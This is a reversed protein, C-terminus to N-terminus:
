RAESRIVPPDTAALLWRRRALVLLAPLVIVTCVLTWLLTLTLLMGMSSTGVHSSMSLSCFSGITTLGSFIVARPTSTGRLSHGGARERGRLVIHLGSDIGLGFLLPLVIVNAYNLDMGIAVATAATLVAALALPLLVLVTAVLSRLTLLLVVIIGLCAIVAAQMIAQVVADGAAMITAPTGSVSPAVQQVAEIFDRRADPDRMDRIPHIELRASGDIASVMRGALTAPLGDATVATAELATALDDLRDVLRGVLARDLAQWATADPRGALFRGIAQKLNVAATVLEAAPEAAAIVRDLPPELGVLAARLTAAPVPVPAAPVTLVPLLLFAVSEIAELKAAQDKPVYDSLTVTRAVLDLQDFTEALRDAAALSAALVVARDDRTEEDAMLDRFAQVSETDPDRLNMPDSDFTLDLAVPLAVLGAVAAMTAIRVAHREIFGGHGPDAAAAAGDAEVGARRDPAAVPMPPPWLAILAVTVTLTMALGVVLGVGSILGLESLGDYATPLFSFFSIIGTISCLTLAPGVAAVARDMAADMVATPDGTGASEERYRMVLHLGYDVGLGIFLVAFAVSILTLTGIAATAFAATWILGIVLTLVLYAALRLSRLGIWLLLAVLLFSVLGVWGIGDQVSQLEESALAVAGTLRVTVGNAPTLALRDAAARVAAMAAQGPVLRSFDLKPQLLIVQRTNGGASAGFARGGILDAWALNHSRGAARAAVTVATEQLMAALNTIQRRSEAKGRAVADLATSLVETLGRLSPDQALTGLFPQADVLRDTLDTLRDHDLYLLGHRRFFAESAPYFVMSFLDPRGDAWRTLTQAASNATEGSDGDVLVVMLRDRQPFAANERILAQRFPLREDLMDTTSTNIDIHAVTYYVFAATIPAIMALTAVATRRVLRVWAVLFSRYRDILSM